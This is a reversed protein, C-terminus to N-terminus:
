GATASADVTLRRVAARFASFVEKFRPGVSGTGVPRGDIAVVPLMERVSSTIWAEEARYLDSPFLIRARVPMPASGIVLRRTIGPLIGLEVPPTILEGDVVAFLNSTAGERVEGQPGVLLAEYAGQRSAQQLALVNPLYNSAKIGAAPTGDLAAGFPVTTLAVGRQRLAELSPPLPLALVIRTPRTGHDHIGRESAGRTVILRLFADEPAGELARHVDERLAAGSVGAIGLVDCGAVLRALHEELLFPAGAYTRLVEFASDGYLFGRDMVSVCAAAWPVSVGNLICRQNM